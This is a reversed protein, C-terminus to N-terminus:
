QQSDMLRRLLEVLSKKDTIPTDIELKKFPNSDTPAWIEIRAYGMGDREGVNMRLRGPKVRPDKSLESM